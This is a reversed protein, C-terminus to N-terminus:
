VSLKRRIKGRIFPGLTPKSSPYTPLKGFVYISGLNAYSSTVQAWNKSPRDASLRPNFKVRTEKEKTACKRPCNERNHKLADLRSKRVFLILSFQSKLGEYRFEFKAGAMILFM